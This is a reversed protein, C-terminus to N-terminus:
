EPPIVFGGGRRYSLRLLPTIGLNRAKRAWDDLRQKLIISRVSSVKSLDTARELVLWICYTRLGLNQGIAPENLLIELVNTAQSCVYSMDQTTGFKVAYLTSDSILDCAEVKHGPIKILSLNKDAYSYDRKDGLYKNFGPESVTEDIVKFEEELTDDLGIRDVANNLTNLYDENFRVWQGHQLFVKEDEISFDLAEKLKQTYGKSEERKVEIKIGLVADRRIQHEGIFGRLADLSLYDVADSRKRFHRLVYQESGPFLFDVGALAHASAPEFDIGTDLISSVLADDYRRVEDEDDVVETIPLDFKPPRTLEDRLRSLIQPIEDVAISLTLLLSSGFKAVAGWKDADSTAARILDTPHQPESSIM